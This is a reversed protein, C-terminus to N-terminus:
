GIWIMVVVFLDKHEKKRIGCRKECGALVQLDFGAVFL